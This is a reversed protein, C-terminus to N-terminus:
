LPMLNPQLEALTMKELLTAVETLIATKETAMVKKMWEDQNTVGVQRVDFAVWGHGKMRLAYWFMQAMGDKLLLGLKAPKGNFQISLQPETAVKM